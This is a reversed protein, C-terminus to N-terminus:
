IISISASKASLLLNVSPVGYKGPGFNRHTLVATSAYLYTFLYIYSSSAFNSEGQKVHYLVLHRDLNAVEGKPRQHSPILGM